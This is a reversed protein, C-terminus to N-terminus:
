GYCNPDLELISVLFSIHRDENGKGGISSLFIDLSFFPLNALYSKATQVGGPSERQDYSTLDM